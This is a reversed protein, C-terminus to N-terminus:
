RFLFHAVDANRRFREPEPLPAKYNYIIM